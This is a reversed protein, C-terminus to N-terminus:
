IPVEHLELARQGGTFYGTGGRYTTKGPDKEGLLELLGSCPKWEKIDRLRAAEDFADKATDETDCVAVAETQEGCEICGVDVNIWRLKRRDGRKPKKPM